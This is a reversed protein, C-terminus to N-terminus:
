YGHSLHDAPDAAFARAILEAVSWRRLPVARDAAATAPEDTGSSLVGGSMPEAPRSVAARRRRRFVGRVATESILGGSPAHSKSPNTM